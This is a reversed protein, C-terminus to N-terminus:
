KLDIKHARNEQTLSIWLGIGGEFGHVLLVEFSVSGEQTGSRCCSVTQKLNEHCHTTAWQKAMLMDSIAICFPPFLRWCVLKMSSLCWLGLVPTRMSEKQGGSHKTLSSFSAETKNGKTERM